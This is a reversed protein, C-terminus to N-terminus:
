GGDSMGDLGPNIRTMPRGFRDDDRAAGGADALGDGASADGRAPPDEDVPGARSRASFTAAPDPSGTGRSPSRASGAVGRPTRRRRGRAVEAAEIADDVIGGPDQAPLDIRDGRLQEILDHGDVAAGREQEDLGASGCRAAVRPETTLM